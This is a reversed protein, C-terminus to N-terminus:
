IGDAVYGVTHLTPDVRLLAQTNSFTSVRNATLRRHGGHMVRLLVICRTEFFRCQKPKSM